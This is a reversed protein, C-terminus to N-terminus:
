RDGRLHQIYGDADTTLRHLVSAFIQNTRNVLPRSARHNVRQWTDAVPGHFRGARRLRDELRDLLRLVASSKRDKRFDRDTWSMAGLHFVADDYLGGMLFHDNRRNSRRLRAWKLGHQWLVLGVGIGSDVKQGTAQLFPAYVPDTGPETDQPMFEPRYTTFFTAPFYCCSPHPLATDDNEERFVAALAHGAQLHSELRLNWDPLVPFADVDMTCLRDHGRAVAEECLLRLYHSHEKSGVADTRPLDLLQLQPCAQLRARVRASVRPATGLITFDGHTLRALQRLHLDLVPILEDALYYVVLVALKM